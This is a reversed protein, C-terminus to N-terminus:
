ATEISEPTSDGCVADAVVIIDGSLSTVLNSPIHKNSKFFGPSVEIQDFQLDGDNFEVSAVQGVYTGDETVVKRKILDALTVLGRDAARPAEGQVKTSDDLM